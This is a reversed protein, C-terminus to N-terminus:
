ADWSNENGNTHINTAARARVRYVNRWLSLRIKFLEILLYAGGAFSVRSSPDNEWLIATEKIKYGLKRGLALSEVDFGWRDILTKSFIGEAARASFLKFGCQTDWVGFVAVVQIILNITKGIVVRYLPQARTIVSKRLGRSGIVIDYEGYGKQLATHSRFEKAYPLLKEIQDLTTSNDADMFIRYAGTAGTMGHRVVWGKGHNEKNELLRLNRIPLDIFRKVVRVTNDKSGDDVVIIEYDRKSFGNQECIEAFSLSHLYRDVDLLTRPLRKEENYAPIIVSLFLPKM